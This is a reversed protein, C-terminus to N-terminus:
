KNSFSLLDVAKRYIHQKFKESELDSKKQQIAQKLETKTLFEGIYKHELELSRTDLKLIKFDDDLVLTKPDYKKLIYIDGNRKLAITNLESKLVLVSTNSEIYKGFTFLSAASILIFFLFFLLKEGDNNFFKPEHKLYTKKQNLQEEEQETKDKLKADIADQLSRMLHTKRLAIPVIFRFILAILFYLFIWALDINKYLFYMLLMVPITLFLPSKFLFGLTGQKTLIQFVGKILVFFLTSFFYVFIISYSITRINVEAYEAPIGYNSLAGIDLIIAVVTGIVPIFWVSILSDKIKNLM